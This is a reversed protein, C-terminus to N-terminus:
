EALFQRLVLQLVGGHRLYEVENQSDVRATVAVERTQGQGDTVTLKLQARPKL